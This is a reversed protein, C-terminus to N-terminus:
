LVSRCDPTLKGKVFVNSRMLNQQSVKAVTFHSGCKKILLTAKFKMAVKHDSIIAGPKCNVEGSLIMVMMMM